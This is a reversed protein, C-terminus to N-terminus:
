IKKKLKERNERILKEEVESNMIKLKERCEITYGILYKRLDDDLKEHYLEEAKIEEFRQSFKLIFENQKDQLEKLKEKLTTIDNLQLITKLTNDFHINMDTHWKMIGFLKERREDDLKDIVQANRLAEEFTMVNCQLNMSRELALANGSETRM